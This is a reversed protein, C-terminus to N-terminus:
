AGSDGWDMTITLSLARGCTECWEDPPASGPDVFEVVPPRKDDEPGNGCEPCESSGGASEELATLRRKLSRVMSKGKKAERV